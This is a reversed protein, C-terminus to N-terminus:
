YNHIRLKLQAKLIEPMEVIEIGKGLFLIWNTWEEVEEECELRVHFHLKAQMQFPDTYNLVLPLPHYKKFQQIGKMDLLLVVNKKEQKIKQLWYKRNRRKQPVYLQLDKIQNIPMLQKEVTEVDVAELIWSGSEHYIALIFFCKKTENLRIEMYEDILLLQIIKELTPHPLDSLDLLDPNYPNTGEFILMKNLFVLDDQQTQSILGILKEALSQRSKLFPLQNNKTAMFAIFLAKVEENTFRVSPLIAHHLVSYGGDRGVEAVLPMGLMEIEKLDRIVTSRSVNFNDMIERITFNARNNIFRMMTNIRETKKM